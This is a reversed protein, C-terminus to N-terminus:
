VSDCKLKKNLAGWFYAQKRNGSRVPGLAGVQFKRNCFKWKHCLIVLLLKILLLVMKLSARLNLFDICSNLPSFLFFFPSFIEWPYSDLLSICPVWAVRQFAFIILKLYNKDLDHLFFQHILLNVFVPIVGKGFTQFLMQIEITM